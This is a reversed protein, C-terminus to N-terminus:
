RLVVVGRKISRAGQSIRVWYQGASLRTDRGIRIEHAGPGLNSLDHSEVQRGAIDFVKLTAPTDDALTFSVNAGGDSTPNPRLAVFALERAPGPEERAPRASYLGECSSGQQFVICANNSIASANGAADTSKLAFFWVEGSGLGSSISISDLAGPTSPGSGGAVETATSWTTSNIESNLLKRISYSAVKCGGSLDETPATWRLLVSNPNLHLSAVVLDTTTDPVTDSFRLQWTDGFVKQGDSGGFIVMRDNASDYVAASFSRRDPATGSPSLRSWVNSPRQLAWVDSTTDASGGLSTSDGGFILMRGRRSDYAARHNERKPPTLDDYIECWGQPGGCTGPTEWLEGIAPDSAYTGGHIVMRATGPDYIAVHYWVAPPWSSGCADGVITCSSNNYCSPPPVNRSWALTALNLNYIDVTYGSGGGLEGAYIRMRRTVPDFIATHGSRPCPKTGTTTPKTWAYTALNLFWVDGFTTDVETSGHFTEGEGGFVVIRNGIPDYIITHEKRPKPATGSTNILSWTQTCSTLDLAYVCSDLSGDAKQGGMVILRHGQSDFCSAHGFRDSPGGTAAIQSWSGSQAIADHHSSSSVALASIVAVVLWTRRGM